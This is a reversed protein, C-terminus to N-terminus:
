TPWARCLRTIGSRKETPPQSCSSAITRSTTTSRPFRAPWRVAIIVLKTNTATFLMAAGFNAAIYLWPSISPNRRTARNEVLSISSISVGTTKSIIIKGFHSIVRKPCSNSAAEVTSIIGDKPCNTLITVPETPNRRDILPWSRKSRMFMSMLATDPTSRPMISIGFMPITPAAM